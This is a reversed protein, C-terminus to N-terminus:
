REIGDSRLAARLFAGERLKRGFGQAAACCTRYEEETLQRLKEVAEAISAATIGVGEREVLEALAAEKWIVVPIGSALYLSTKHPNNYRLYEGYVGACTDASPGDWVLGFGGELAAPLEGSPFSGRYHANSAGRDGYGIGYLNVEAASPLAYVYGAKEPSLNGAVILTTRDPSPTRSEVARAAAADMRYDFIGLSIMKERSVGLSAMYEAMRDNHVILRDCQALVSKEELRMRLRSRLSVDETLSLRLLEIDHILAIVRVGRARLGRLLGALFLCNNVLPLQLFLRDGAALPAFRAALQRRMVFHARVKAALGAHLRDGPDPTLRLLQFGEDLCIRDADERAKSWATRTKEGTINHESLAYDM